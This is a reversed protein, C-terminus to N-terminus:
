RENIWNSKRNKGESFRRDLEFNSTDFITAVDKEINECINKKVHAIFSDTDIYCLKANEGFKPTVYGYWLEYM